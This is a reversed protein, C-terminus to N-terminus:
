QYDNAKIEYGRDFEFNKVMIGTDNLEKRIDIDTKILDGEKLYVTQINEKESIIRQCLMSLKLTIDKISRLSLDEKESEIEVYERLDGLSVLPDKYCIRMLFRSKLGGKARSSLANSGLWLSKDLANLDGKTMGTKKANVPNISGYYQVLAYPVTYLTNFTGQKKGEIVQAVLTGKNEKVEVEHLSRGFLFQGPGTFNFAKEEKLAAVLGFVRSDIYKSVIKQSFDRDQIEREKKKGKNNRKGNKDYLHPNEIRDDRAILKEMTVVDGEDNVEKRILIDQNEYNHWTDRITRKLSTDSPTLRKTRYDWRPRNKNGPDGNMNSDIADLIYLYEHKSQIM